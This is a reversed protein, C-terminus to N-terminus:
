RGAPTTQDEAAPGPPASARRTPGQGATDIHARRTRFAMLMAAGALVLLSPLLCLLLLALPDVLDCRGLRLPQRLDPDPEVLAAARYEPGRLPWTAM